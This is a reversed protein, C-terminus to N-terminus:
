GKIAGTLVGRTFFRQLFPYVLLIPVTAIVLVAMRITEPPTTVKVQGQTMPNGQVVYQNLVMQIPWKDTDNLYLVADFFINWIAVGYFLAIVALIAKSLPLVIDWLVRLDNAGDMHASDIIDQPINMFFNRVVVLNFASIMGPLILSAYSNLLGLEKIMLFRPILGPQFLFTFLVMMLVVKSGIVSRRSLAYALTTTMVVNIVTGVATLGVSVGVARTVVGGQLVTRYADLTPHAPFLILGRGVVDQYSSLSVSIVYVFPFVMLLAIITILLAKATLFSRSPREMWPPRADNHHSWPRQGARTALRM